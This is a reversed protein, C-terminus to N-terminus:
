IQEVLPEKRLVAKVEDLSLVRLLVIGLLYSAGSIVILAVLPAGFVKALWAILGMMVAAILTRVLRKLHPRMKLTGMITRTALSMVLMETTLTMWAAAMFGYSPILAINLGANFVLAIAAFVIFRRQLELLIVMSSTVYGFSVFVFAAMLVPLAPAAAAFDKGFLLIVLSRSEVITFALIPLSAIALYETALQLLGQVRKINNPYSSAILPYLTTMLAIPIFQVQELIRYVAGYLGAERSGALDLVLIQDLRVYGTILMGAIGVPIGVRILEAWLHRSDRLHIPMMRLAVVATITATLASVVTFLAAFVVIGGSSAAVIIVSIAWLISNLTLIAMSVDNRVRLMFTANLAAPVGLLLTLSIVIGALRSQSTPAILIVAIISGFTVPLALIFRLSLLAGLWEPGRTTDGAARTIATQTLGLEGFNTAIQTIAFIASWEGFGHAGLARVIVLTVVIGLLLNGIRAVLQVAVDASARRAGIQM